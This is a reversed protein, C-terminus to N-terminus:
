FKFIKESGFTVTGKTFACHGYKDYEPFKEGAKKEEMKKGEKGKRMHLNYRPQGILTLRSFLAYSFAFNKVYGKLIVMCKMGHDPLRKQNM